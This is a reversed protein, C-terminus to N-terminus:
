GSDKGGGWFLLAPVPADEEDQVEDDVGRAGDAHREEEGHEAPPVITRAFIIYVCVCVCRNFHLHEM